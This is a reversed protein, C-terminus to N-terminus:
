PSPVPTGATTTTWSHPYNSASPVVADDVDQARMRVAGTGATYDVQANFTASDIIAGFPVALAAFHWAAIAEDTSDGAATGTTSWSVPTSTGADYLETGDNAEAAIGYWHLVTDGIAEIDTAASTATWNEPLHSADLLPADDTDEASVTIPTRGITAAMAALSLTASQLTAGFPIAVDRFHWGGVTELGSNDGANIVTQLWVGFVSSGDDDDRTIPVTAEVVPLPAPVDLDIAPLAQSATTTTWTSPRNATAPVSASDVDEARVTIVGTGKSIPKATVIFQASEIHAGFPVEIGGFHWAAVNERGSNDGARTVSPYFTNNELAEMGDNDTTTIPYVLTSGPWEFMRRWFRSRRSRPILAFQGRDRTQPSSPTTATLDLGSDPPLTLAM